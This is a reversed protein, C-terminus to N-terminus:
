PRGGRRHALTQAMQRYVRDFHREAEEEMAALQRSEESINRELTGLDSDLGAVGTLITVRNDEVMVTGGLQAVVQQRDDAKFIVEGPLLRAQFRTHGPLVGLWGDPLPLVVSAVETDLITTQPTLVELRISAL